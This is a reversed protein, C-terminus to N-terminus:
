DRLERGTLELFLNNLSPPEISVRDLTVRTGAFLEGLLAVAGGGEAVALVLKEPTDALVRVGERARLATRAEPEFGGSLTIVEEGGVQRQLEELTGEAHLKGHDLIGIRDCLHEVEELYHTTYLVAAGGDAVARVTDLIHRRAQPDIGVTPEDLLVARPAHVLGLALNLRRKMGGSFREVPEDARGALDVLDLARDVAAVRAAGRLDYMGAWFRLHERASLNNYLANEQPVVGLMARVELPRAALDLGGITLKGADPRLLGALMSLTTTKGAGNPGLLGYIEGDEVRLSVGDVAILDGFSKRLDDIQIM